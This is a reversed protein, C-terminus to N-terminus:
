ADLTTKTGTIIDEIHPDNEFNITNKKCEDLTIAPVNASNTSYERSPYVLRYPRHTRGIVSVPLPLVPFGTRLHDIYLEIGHWNGLALYKQTMIASIKDTSGTWGLGNKAESAAIYTAPNLAAVAVTGWSKSYFAFSANIGEYFKTQATGALYGRQIAEAELFKAEALQMIYADRISANNNADDANAGSRGFYFSAFRSIETLPFDGQVNGVAAGGVLNFIRSRRPDVIGTTINADNMTGNVLRAAFDGAAMARNQSTFADLAAQLGWQTFVPNRQGVAINFGPNYAVDETIFDTSLAAFRNTRLTVLAPDTTKSLRLALKLEVTNLFQNWKAIDGHFVVDESALVEHVNANGTNLLARAEDIETFLAPIIAKDDDYAPYSINDNLAQSYPVDGYLATVYDMCMVKFIKAIGIHYEYNPFATEKDIIDQFNDAVLYTNNFLGNYSSSDFNYDYAPDTSTFGNNLGWFYSMRNGFDNLTVNQHNGYGVLAGALMQSPAISNFDPRNSQDENVGLYDECSFLTFATLVSLFIKKM